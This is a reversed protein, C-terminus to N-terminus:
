RAQSYENGDGPSAARKVGLPEEIIQVSSLVLHMDHEALVGRHHDGLLKGVAQLKRNADARVIQLAHVSREGAAGISGIGHDDDRAAHARESPDRMAVAFVHQLAGSINHQLFTLLEDEDGALRREVQDVDLVELEEDLGARGDERGVRREVHARLRDFLHHIGDHGPHEIVQPYRM